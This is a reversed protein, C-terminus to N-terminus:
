INRLFDAIVSDPRDESCLLVGNIIEDKKIINLINRQEIIRLYEVEYDAWTIEKKQYNRLLDKTPALLPKYIYQWFFKQASKKSFGITYIKDKLRWGVAIYVTRLKINM